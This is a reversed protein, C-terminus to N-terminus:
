WRSDGESRKQIVVWTEREPVRTHDRRRSINLCGDFQAGIGALEQAWKTPNRRAARPYHDEGPNWFKSGKQGEEAHRHDDFGYETKVCVVAGPALGFSAQQSADTSHSEILSEHTSIDVDLGTRHSSLAQGLAPQRHSHRRLADNIFTYYILAIYYSVDSTHVLSSLDASTTNNDDYSNFPFAASGAGASSPLTLRGSSAAPSRQSLGM